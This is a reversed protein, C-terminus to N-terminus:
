LLTDYIEVTYLVSINVTIWPLPIAPSLYCTFLSLEVRGRRKHFVDLWVFFYGCLTDGEKSVRLWTIKMEHHFIATNYWRSLLHSRSSCISQVKLLTAVCLLHLHFAIIVFPKWIRRSNRVDATKTRLSSLRPALPSLNLWLSVSRFSQVQEPPIEWWTMKAKWVCLCWPSAVKCKVDLTHTPDRAVSLPRCTQTVADFASYYNEM